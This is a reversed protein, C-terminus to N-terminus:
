AGTIRKELRDILPQVADIIENIERNDTHDAIVDYGDNGYVFVIGGNCYTGDKAWVRLSDTDTEHLESKIIAADTSKRAIESRQGDQIVTLRYGLALAKDVVADIISREAKLRQDLQKQADM